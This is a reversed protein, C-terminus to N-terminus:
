VLLKSKESTTRSLKKVYSNISKSGLLFIVFIQSVSKIIIIKIIADLTIPELLPIFMIVPPRPLLSISNSNISAFVETDFSVKIRTKYVLSM